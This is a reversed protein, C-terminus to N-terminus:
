GHGSPGHSSRSEYAPDPRPNPYKHQYDDGGFLLNNLEDIKQRNLPLEARKRLAARVQPSKWLSVCYDCPNASSDALIGQQPFMERAWKLLPVFGAAMIFRLLPDTRWKDYIRALGVDDANGYQFPHDARENILHACCPSVTGDFRIVPSLPICPWQPGSGKMTKTEIDVGRGINVLPQIHFPVTDPLRSRLFGYLERHEESVPIANTMRIMVFKNSEHIADAAYLIHDRPVFEEHFVDTSLHWRKIYPFRAVIKRAARKTKAWYCSTLVACEIQNEVAAESLLSLQRPALFPEGGTFTILEVGRNKLARFERVYKVAREDPMTYLKYPGQASAVICHKCKLTCAETLSITLHRLSDRQLRALSGM